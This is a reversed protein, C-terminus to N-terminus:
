AVLRGCAPCCAARETAAFLGDARPGWVRLEESTALRRAGDEDVVLHAMEVDDAMGVLLVAGAPLERVACRGYRRALEDAIVDQERTLV